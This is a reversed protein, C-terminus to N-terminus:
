EKQSTYFVFKFHNFSFYLNCKLLKMRKREELVAELVYHEPFKFEQIAFKKKRVSDVFYKDAPGNMNIFSTPLVFKKFSKILEMNPHIHQKNRFITQFCSGRHFQMDFASVSGNLFLPFMVIRWTFCGTFFSQICEFHGINFANQVNKLFDPRYIEKAGLCSYHNTCVFVNGLTDFTVGGGEPRILDSLCLSHIFNKVADTNDQLPIDLEKTDINKLHFSPYAVMKEYNYINFGFQYWFMTTLLNCAIEARKKSFKPANGDREVKLDRVLNGDSLLVHYRMLLAFRPVSKVLRYMKKCTQSLWSATQGCYIYQSLREVIVIDIQSNFFSM